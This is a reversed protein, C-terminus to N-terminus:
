ARVRKQYVETGLTISCPCRVGNDLAITIGAPLGRLAELFPRVWCSRGAKLSGDRRTLLDLVTPVPRGDRIAPDRFLAVLHVPASMRQLKWTAGDASLQVIASAAAFSSRAVPCTPCNHIPASTFGVIRMAESGCTSAM